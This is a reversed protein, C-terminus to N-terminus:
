LRPKTINLEAKGQPCGDSSGFISYNGDPWYQEKLQDNTKQKFCFNLRVSARSFPGQLLSGTESSIVDSEEDSESQNIPVSHRRISLPNAMSFHVYGHKWGKNAAEPCGSRPTFLAYPGDPWASEVLESVIRALKAM